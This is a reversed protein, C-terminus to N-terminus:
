RQAAEGAEVARTLAKGLAIRARDGCVGIERRLTAHMVDLAASRAPGPDALARALMPERPM